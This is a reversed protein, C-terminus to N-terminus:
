ANRIKAFLSPYNSLQDVLNGLDGVLANFPDEEFSSFLKFPNSCATNTASTTTSENVSSSDSLPSTPSLSASLSLIDPYRLSNGHESTRHDAQITEIIVFSAKCVQEARGAITVMRELVCPMRKSIQIRVSNEIALTRIDEGSKGMIMGVVSNPVVMRLSILAYEVSAGLLRSRDSNTCIRFVEVVLQIAVCIQVLTGSLTMVRDKTGPFHTGVESVRCTCGTIAKLTSLDNYCFEMMQDLQGYTLLVKCYGIRSGSSGLLDEHNTELVKYNMGFFYIERGTTVVDNSKM